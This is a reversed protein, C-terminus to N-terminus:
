LTSPLTNSTFHQPHPTRPCLTSPPPLNNLPHHYITSPTTTFQQLTTTFQQLPQTLNNLPHHYITSLTTNFQQSPPPLNNPTPIVYHPHPTLINFTFHQPYLTSPEPPFYQHYSRLTILIHHYLISTTTTLYHSFVTSPFTNITRPYVTLPLTSFM